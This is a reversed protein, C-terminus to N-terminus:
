VVRVLGNTNAQPFLVFKRAMRYEAFRARMVQRAIQRAPQVPLVIMAMALNRLLGRMCQIVAVRVVFMVPIVIVTKLASLYNVSTM